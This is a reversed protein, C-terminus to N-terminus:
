RTAVRRQPPSVIRNGAKNWQEAKGDAGSQWNMKTQIPALLYKLTHNCWVLCNSQDGKWLINEPTRWENQGYVGDWTVLAAQYGVKVVQRWMSSEGHEFSYRDHRNMVKFPYDRLFHTGIAFATTNLHPRVLYSSYCGYMGPGYACWADEIRALWGERHFHVSEGLCMMLDSKCQKALDIYGGIDWGDNSRTFFRANLGEFLKMLFKSPVGGNCIVILEHNCGSPFRKLTECFRQAMVHSNQGQIVCTYGITISPLRKQIMFCQM